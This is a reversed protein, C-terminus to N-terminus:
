DVGQGMPAESDATRASADRQSGPRDLFSHVETPSALVILRQTPQLRQLQMVLGPREVRRFRAVYWLFEPFRRDLLEEHCGAAMDPRARGRHSVRRKLIRYLCVHTPLDLFIVTDARGLRFPATKGYNGDVIWAGDVPLSSAQAAQFEDHTSEVWGPKWFLQDLHVLPLALKRALEFSLTSKGSGPCGVVAIRKM